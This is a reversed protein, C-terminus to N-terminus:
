TQCIVSPKPSIMVMVSCTQFNMRSTSKARSAARGCRETYDAKFSPSVQVDVVLVAVLM